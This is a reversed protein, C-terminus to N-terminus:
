QLFGAAVPLQPLISTIIDFLPAPQKNDYWQIFFFIFLDGGRMNDLTGGAQSFVLSYLPPPPPPTGLQGHWAPRLM